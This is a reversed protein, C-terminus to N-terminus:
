NVVKKIRPGSATDEIEFGQRKIETRLKDSEKFDASKRAKERKNVLKMVEGPIETPKALYQELELGLIKDMELLMTAKITPETESSVMNWMIAMAQPMNLDNNVANMFLNLDQSVKKDVGGGLVKDWTRIIERLHNLANQAAQM